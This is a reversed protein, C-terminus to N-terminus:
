EQIHYLSQRHTSDVQSSNTYERVLWRTRSLSVSDLYLGGMRRAFPRPPEEAEEANWLHTKYSRKRSM